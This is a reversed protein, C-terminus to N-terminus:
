LFLNYFNINVRFFELTSSHKLVGFELVNQKILDEASTIPVLM